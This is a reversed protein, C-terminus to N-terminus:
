KCAEPLFHPNQLKNKSATNIQDASNREQVALDTFEVSLQCKAGTSKLLTSNSTM